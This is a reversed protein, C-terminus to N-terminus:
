ILASHADPIYEGPFDLRDIERALQAQASKEAALTASWESEKAKKGEEAKEARAIKFLGEAVGLHYNNRVSIGKKSCAWDLTLNYAMESGM